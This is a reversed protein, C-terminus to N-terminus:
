KSKPSEAEPKHGPWWIIYGVIASISPILLPAIVFSALAVGIAVSAGMQTLFSLGGLMLSAFTGALILGASAVTASSHEITLDAARHPKNGARVEERLRSITLINYDTGIAVVFIYMFLPLFSILGSAGGIEQFILTTAGLTAAYGLSVCILLLIPAVLSRLLLALVLFILGAAIPFLVSLDRDTVAKMDAVAGTMGGVYVQTSGDNFSHATQRIPGSLKEVAASSYPDDRLIISITAIKADKTAAAPLVEAVGETTKLKTRLPELKELSIPSSSKIYIPTPNSQGAPFANQLDHYASAGLTNKPPQSFSSFDANYKTVFFGLAVLTTTVLGAVLKPRRAVLGGIKKSVTAAEPKNMWARSPWFIKEGIIAVLAPIFTLASIMMIIVSIVLGPAMSSFIGFDAFFLAAFSFLVVLAASLIVEGARSLAFAVAGRTHDGLRLRERYRFLLFLVYDTGIGFMVVPFLISLEQSITFNFAHGIASIISNSVMFVFGIALVPLIGALPSRFIITPLSFVLLITGILVIQLARDASNKTDHSIALNGTLGATLNTGAVEQGLADRVHDVTSLLEPDESNSGTYKVTAIQTTKDQSLQFASTTVSEVNKLHKSSLNNTIVSIKRRESESLVTGSKNKFVAIDSIEDSNQGAQSAVKAAQITEYKEPLFDSQNNSQISSINPALSVAAISGIIWIAVVWWRRKVIFEAFKSIM